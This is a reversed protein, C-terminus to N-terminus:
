VAAGQTVTSTHTRDGASCLQSYSKANGFSLHLNCSNSPNLEQGGCSRYATPTAM